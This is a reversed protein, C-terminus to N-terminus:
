GKGEHFVAVNETRFPLQHPETISGGTAQKECPRDCPKWSLPLEDAGKKKPSSAATYALCIRGLPCYFPLSV